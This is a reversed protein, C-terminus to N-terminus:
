CGWKIIGAKIRGIKEKERTSLGKIHELAFECGVIGSCDAHGRTVRGGNGAAKEADKKHRFCLHTFEVRYYVQLM